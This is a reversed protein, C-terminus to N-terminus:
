NVSNDFCYIITSFFKETYPSSSALLSNSKYFPLFKKFSGVKALKSLLFERFSTMMIVQQVTTSAINYPRTPRVIAIPWFQVGHVDLVGQDILVLSLV